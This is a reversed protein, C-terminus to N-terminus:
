SQVLPKPTSVAKGRRDFHRVVSRDFHEPTSELKKPAATPTTAVLCLCPYFQVLSPPFYVASCPVVFTSMHLHSFVGKYIASINEKATLLEDTNGCRSVKRSSAPMCM